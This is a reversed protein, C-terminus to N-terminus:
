RVRRAWGTVLPRYGARAWFPTSLPNMASHHLVVVHAGAASARLHAAAVLRSGVQQGRSGPDVYMEALYATSPSAVEGAVWQADEPPEMQCVGVVAGDLEAV